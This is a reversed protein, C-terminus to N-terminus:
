RLSGQSRLPSPTTMLRWDCTYFQDLRNAYFRYGMNAGLFMIKSIPTARMRQAISRYGYVRRWTAMNGQQLADASMHAPEFVVHQGDYLEWNRSTIRDEAELRKFLATGPFPTLIAFRPLDIGADIVFQATEEFVDPTHDDIGFVFTGNVAIGVSHFKEIWDAYLEPSNFGKQMGKLGSHSISEFGVLLGVCGSRACLELLADDRALLSTTLGAWKLNLPIM